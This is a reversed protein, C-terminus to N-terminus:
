ATVESANASTQVESAKVFYHGDSHSMSASASSNWYAWNTAKIWDEYLADPVIIKVLTCSYASSTSSAKWRDCLSSTTLTPIQTAASFDLILGRDAHGIFSNKITTINKGLKITTPYFGSLKRTLNYFANAELTTINDPLTITSDNNVYLESIGYEPITTFKENQSFRIDTLYSSQICYYLSMDEVTDDMYLTGYLNEMRPFHQYGYFESNNLYWVDLKNVSGKTLDTKIYPGSISGGDMTGVISEGSKDHATFGKALHSADVTDATLDIQTENNIVVKNIAM